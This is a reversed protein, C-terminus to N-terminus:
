TNPKKPWSVNFPYEPQLHIEKLCKRYELWEIRQGKTINTNDILVFEISDDLLKKVISDIKYKEEQLIESYSKQIEIEFWGQDELGCWSLDSLKDKFNHLGFIPGWNVPLYKTEELVENTSIKKM